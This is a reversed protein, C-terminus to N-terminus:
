YHIIGYDFIIEYIHPEPSTITSRLRINTIGEAETWYVMHCLKDTLQHVLQGNIYLRHTGKAMRRKLFPSLSYIEGFTDSKLEILIEGHADVNVDFATVESTPNLFTPSVLPNADVIKSRGQQSVLSLWYARWRPDATAAHPSPLPAPM